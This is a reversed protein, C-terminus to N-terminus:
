GYIIEQFAAIQVAADADEVDFNEDLAIQHMAVLLDDRTFSFTTEPDECDEGTVRDWNPDQYSVRDEGAFCRVNCAWYGIGGEIATILVDNVDQHTYTATSM